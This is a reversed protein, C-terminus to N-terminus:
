EFADVICSLVYDPLFPESRKSVKVGKNFITAVGRSMQFNETLQLNFLTILERIISDEKYSRNLGVPYLMFIFM